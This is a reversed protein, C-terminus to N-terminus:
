IGYYDALINAGKRVLLMMHEPWNIAEPIDLIVVQTLAHIIKRGTDIQVVTGNPCPISGILMDRIHKAKARAKRAREATDDSEDGDHGAVSFLSQAKASPHQVGSTAYYRGMDVAFRELAQHQRETITNARWMRGFVYGLRPDAAQEEASVMRGDKARFPVINDRLIRQEVVVSRAAQESMELRMDKSEKRRSKDGTSPEYNTAPLRPRGRKLKLKQAKTRPTM